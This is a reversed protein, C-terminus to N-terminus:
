GDNALPLSAILKAIAKHEPTKSFATRARLTPFLQSYPGGIGYVANHLEPWAKATKAANRAIELLEKAHTKANSTKGPKKAAPTTAKSKTPRKRSTPM